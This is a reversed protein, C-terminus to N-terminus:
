NGADISAKAAIVLNIECGTLKRLNDITLFDLPDNVVCTLSNMHKSLPLLCNKKAFDAPVLEKLSEDQQPKLLEPNDSSYYPMKLQIGLAAIMQEENILGHKVLIEGIRGKEDHQSEIAQQLQQDTILGQNILIEGIKLHAM